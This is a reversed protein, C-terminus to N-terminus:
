RNRHYVYPLRDRLALGGGRLASAQHLHLPEFGCPRRTRVAIRPLTDPKRRRALFSRPALRLSAELRSIECGALFRSLSSRRNEVPKQSAFAFLLNCVLASGSSYSIVPRFNEMGFVAQKWSFRSRHLQFPSRARRPHLRDRRGVFEVMSHPTTRKHEARPAGFVAPAATSGM